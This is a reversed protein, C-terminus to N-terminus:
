QAIGQDRGAALSPQRRRRESGAAFERQGTRRLRGIIPGILPLRAVRERATNAKTPPCIRNAPVGSRPISTSRTPPSPRKRATNESKEATVRIQTTRA